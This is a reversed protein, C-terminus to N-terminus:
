LSSAPSSRFRGACTREAATRGAEPFPGESTAIWIVVPAVGYVVLAALGLWRRGVVSGKGRVGVAFIVIGAALSLVGALHLNNSLRGRPGGAGPGLTTLTSLFEDGVGGLHTMQVVRFASAALLFAGGLFFTLRGLPTM